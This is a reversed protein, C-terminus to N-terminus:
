QGPISAESDSSRVSSSKSFRSRFHCAPRAAWSVTVPVNSGTPVGDPIVANVLYLGPYSPTLGQFTVRAAQGGVLLQVPAAHLPSRRSTNRWRSGASGRRGAGSLLDIDHRRCACSNAATVAYPSGGSAPYSTVANAGSFITPEATAVTVYVPQSLTNGRQVLIQLPANLSTTTLSYPVVANILGDAM